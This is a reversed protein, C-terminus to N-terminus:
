KRHNKAHPAPPPTNKRKGSDATVEGEDTDYGTALEDSKRYTKPPSFEDYQRVNTSLGNWSKSDDYEPLNQKYNGQLKNWYKEDAERIMIDVDNNLRVTYHNEPNEERLKKCMSQAEVYRSFYQPPIFNVLSFEKNKAKSGRRFLNLVSMPDMEMYLINSKDNHKTKVIKLDGIEEETFKLFHSLFEEGALKEAEHKTSGESTYFQINYNSIPKLGIIRKSINIVDEDEICTKEVTMVKPKTDKVKGANDRLDKKLMESYSPAEAEKFNRMEINKCMASVKSRRANEKEAITRWDGM